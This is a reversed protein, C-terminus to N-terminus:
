TTRAYAPTAREVADSAPITTTAATLSADIANPSCSGTNASSRSDDSLQIVRMWVLIIFLLITMPRASTVVAATAAHEFLAEVDAGVGAVLGDAELAGAAGATAAFGNVAAM